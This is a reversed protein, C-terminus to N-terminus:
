RGNGTKFGKCVWSTTGSLLSIGTGCVSCHLTTSPITMVEIDCGFPEDTCFRQTGTRFTHGQLSLFGENCSPCVMRGTGDYTVAFGSSLGTGNLDAWEVEASVQTLSPVPSAVVLLILLLGAAFGWRSHGGIRGIVQLRQKMRTGSGSLAPGIRVFSAHVPLRRLLLEGYRRREERGLNQSVSEDCSLENAHEVQNRLLFALPNFWHLTTVGRMLMKWVLDRHIYHSLEHELILRIEAATYAVDPLLITPRLVGALFPTSIGTSRELRISPGVRLQKRCEELVGLDLPTAPLLSKRLIAM